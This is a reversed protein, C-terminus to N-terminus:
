MTGVLEQRVLKSTILGITDEKRVAPPHDTPHQKRKAGNQSTLHCEKDMTVTNNHHRGSHCDKGLTTPDHHCEKVVSSPDNQCEKGSSLPADQCEKEVASSNHQCVSTVRSLLADMKHQQHQRMQERSRVEQCSHLWQKWSTFVKSVLTHHYHLGAIELCRDINLFISKSVMLCIVLRLM